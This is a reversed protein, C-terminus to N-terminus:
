CNKRISVKAQEIWERLGLKLAQDPRLEWLRRVPNWRGGASEVRRQLAVEQFHHPRGGDNRGQKGRTSSAM